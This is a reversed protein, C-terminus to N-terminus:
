DKSQIFAILGKDFSATGKEMVFENSILAIPYEFSEKDLTYKFSNDLTLNSLATLGIFSCYKKDQEKYLTYSGPLYFSVTNTQNIFSLKAIIGEFRPQLVIMIISLLHDLRGGSWGYLIIQEAEFIETAYVLSLEADTDDKEPEFSIIKKSVKEIIKKEDETISDFDGLSLDISYNNQALLLAGRDVGIYHDQEKMPPMSRQRHDPSGLMIHVNSM